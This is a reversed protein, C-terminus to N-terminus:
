GPRGLGDNILFKLDRDYEDVLVGSCQYPFLWYAVTSTRFYGTCWQVPVSIVLVHVVAYAVASTLFDGTSRQVLVSTM